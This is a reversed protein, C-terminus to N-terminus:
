GDTQEVRRITTILPGGTSDYRIGVVLVARGERAEVHVDEVFGAEQLVNAVALKLKSSPCATKTHNATGANRIRTIMDAIPDTMM